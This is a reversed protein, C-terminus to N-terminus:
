DTPLNSFPANLATDTDDNISVGTGTLVNTELADKFAYAPSTSDTINGLIYLVHTTVSHTRQGVVGGAIGDRKSVMTITFQTYSQGPIPMEGMQKTFSWYNTNAATPLRLNHIIWNYDCFAELGPLIPVEDSGLSTAQGDEGVKEAPDSSAVAKGKTSDNATSIEYIVPVGKVLTEYAGDMTCCDVTVAEPNYWQLEAKKIQQYGNVGEFTVTAGKAAVYEPADPTGVAETSNETTVNLIKDNGTVLLFYKNAIKKIRAAVDDTTDNKKVYFEIFLPKGKYVFDNAYFSDQSNMSLGIYLAIRATIENPAVVTNGGGDQDTVKEVLPSLDFTVSALSELSPSKVYVSEIQDANFRTNGIRIAPNDGESAIWLNKDKGTQSINNYITQTTFNFM